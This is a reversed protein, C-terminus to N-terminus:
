YHALREAALRQPRGARFAEVLRAKSREVATEYGFELWEQHLQKQAAIVEPDHRTIRRLLEAAADVHDFAPALRNATARFRAPSPNQIGGCRSACNRLRRSSARTHAKRKEPRELQILVIANDLSETRIV